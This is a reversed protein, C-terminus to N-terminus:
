KGQRKAALLQQIADPLSFATDPVDDFTVSTTTEVQVGAASKHAAQTPMLWGDYSKYESFVEREDGPGGRWSSNFRYGILLGSATDYFHENLKGWKNTGKLHYCRHGEFEAVEVVEMTSFYDLIHGPYRMDADRASSKVEDGESVAPGDIPHLQWATTGDFGQQFVKGDPLTIQYLMKGDKYYATRDLSLGKDSLEFKGHVTMSAHRFIADHGGLAKVYRDMVDQVTPLSPGSPQDAAVCMGLTFFLLFAGPLFISNFFRIRSKVAGEKVEEEQVANLMQSTYCSM